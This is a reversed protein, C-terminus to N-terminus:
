AASFSTLTCNNHRQHKTYLTDTHTYQKLVLKSAANCHMCQGVLRLTGYYVTASRLLHDVRVAVLLMEFDSQHTM